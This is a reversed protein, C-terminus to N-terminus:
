SHGFRAKEANYHQTIQADSLAGKYVRIIAIEGTFRKSSDAGAIHLNYSSSVSTGQPLWGANSSGVYQTELLATGNRYFRIRPINNYKKAAIHVWDTTVDYSTQSQLSISTAASGTVGSSSDTYHTPVPYLGEMRLGGWSSSDGRELVIEDGSSSTRKFWAEETFDGTGFLFDNADPITAYDNTGDFTFSGGGSTSSYTPSHILTANHNGTTLDNWATGSGSYSNAHGADLYLVLNSWIIDSAEGGLGLMTQQIPM